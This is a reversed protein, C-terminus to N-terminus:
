KWWQKGFIEVDSCQIEVLIFVVFVVLIECNCWNIIMYVVVKIVSSLCFVLEVVEDVYDCCFRGM